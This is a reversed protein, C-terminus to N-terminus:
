GIPRRPRLRMKGAFRARQSQAHRKNARDEFLAAWTAIREDEKLFPAAHKLSGYLYIQPHATLLWNTTDTDSLAPLAQKYVLRTTYAGDPAPAFRAVGDVISVYRPRGSDGLSAKAHAVVGPGTVELSGYHYDDGDFYWADVSGFDEPMAHDDASITVELEIPRCIRYDDRFEDEALQILQDVPVDDRGWLWETIADQLSAYDTIQAM